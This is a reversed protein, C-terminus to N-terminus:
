NSPPFVGRHGEAAEFPSLFRSLDPISAVLLQLSLSRAPRLKQACFRQTRQEGKDKGREVANEPAGSVVILRVILGAKKHNAHRTFVSPRKLAPDERGWNM